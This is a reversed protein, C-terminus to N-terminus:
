KVLYATIKKVIEGPTASAKVIYGDAGLQKAHEIDTDQGLNSLMIVLSGEALKGEKIRKLVEFGDLNPMVVDLLIVHPKETKLVRLADEGSPATSVKFHLETFKLAYMDLLFQDDDVILITWQKKSETKPIQEDM